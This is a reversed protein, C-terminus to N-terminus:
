GSVDHIPGSGNNNLNASFDPPCAFGDQGSVIEDFLLICSTFGSLYAMTIGIVEDLEEAKQQCDDVTYKNSYHCM